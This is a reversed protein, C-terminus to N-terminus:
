EVPSVVYPIALLADREQLFSVLEVESIRAWFTISLKTNLIDAQTVIAPLIRTPISLSLRM